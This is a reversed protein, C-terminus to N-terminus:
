VNPAGAYQSFTWEFTQVSYALAGDTVFVVYVNDHAAVIPSSIFSVLACRGDTAVVAQGLDSAQLTGPIRTETKRVGLFTM